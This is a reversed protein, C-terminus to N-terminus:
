PHASLTLVQLGEVQIGELALLGRKIDLGGEAGQMFGGLRNGSAVIRHCPVVVPIPNRGLANGVAQAAKANGTQAALWGYTRVEGHPITMLTRMVRGLLTSKDAFTIPVYEFDVPEGKFYRSLMCDLRQELRTKPQTNLESSLEPTLKPGLLDISVLADPTSPTEEGRTSVSWYGLPSEIVFTRM